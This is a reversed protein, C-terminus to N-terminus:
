PKIQKKLLNKRFVEFFCSIETIYRPIKDIKETNPGILNKNVYKLFIIYTLAPPLNLVTLYFDQLLTWYDEWFGIMMEEPDDKLSFLISIIKNAIIYNYPYTIIGPTKQIRTKIYLKSFKKIDEVTEESKSTLFFNIFESIEEIHPSDLLIEEWYYNIAQFLYLSQIFQLNINPINPDLFKKIKGRRMIKRTVKTLITDIISM